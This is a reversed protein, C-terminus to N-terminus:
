NCNATTVPPTGTSYYCKVYQCYDVAVFFTGGRFTDPCCAQDDLIAPCAAASLQSVGFGLFLLLTFCFTLKKFM